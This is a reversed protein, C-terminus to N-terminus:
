SFSSLLLGIDIELFPEGGSIKDELIVQLIWDISFSDESENNNQNEISDITIGRELSM